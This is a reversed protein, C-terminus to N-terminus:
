ADDDPTGDPDYLFFFGGMADIKEDLPNEYVTTVIVREGKRVYFGEVSQYTTLRQHELAVDDKMEATFLVKGDRARKLEVYKGYPHLHGGAAHVRGTDPFVTERSAVHRRFSEGAERPPVWYQDPRSSSLTFAKLPVLAKQLDPDTVYDVELRMRAECASPRRNNFMPQFILKRGAPVKVAFGKPLDFVPTFGDTYIGEFLQGDSQTMRVDSLTTHCHIDDPARTGDTMETNSRWRTIYIDQDEDFVKIKFPEAHFGVMDPKLPYHRTLVTKRYTGEGLDENKDVGPSFYTAPEPAPPSPRRGCGAVLTALLLGSLLVGFGPGPGHRPTRSVRMSPHYREGQRGPGAAVPPQGYAAKM